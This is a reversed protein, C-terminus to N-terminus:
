PHVKRGFVALKDLDKRGPACEVGRCVDVGDPSAALAAAANDSDLGGALLVTRGLARLAAAAAALGADVTGPAPAGAGKPLDLLLYATDYAAARAVLDGGAELAKIVPLGTANRLDRCAAPSEDGHLQLLDLGCAGAIEAVRGPKEDRFVGVLRAGPVARRIALVQDATAQRPSPALIVGLLDAGAAVAARADDPTTLGCVKLLPADEAERGLLQRLKRGPDPHKLLAHGVLFADAGLAGLRVVQARADIGSEAVRVVSDPLRPLLRATLGVDTTLANLDRNNLGVLAAGADLAANVDAEDHCEVLAELGRHRVAALLEALRAPTMMRAILLVADAGAAWAATVQVEDVIFDKCIVPLRTAARVAPVDDLSTGFHDRDTVISVAAAGSREYVAAIRAVDAELRFHPDSPSCRKVEAILRGGGRLAGAFDRVPPGRRVPARVAYEERLNAAEREKLPRIRDLFNM